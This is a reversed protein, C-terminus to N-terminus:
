EPGKEIREGAVAPEGKKGPFLKETLAKVPPNRRLIRIVTDPPRSEAARAISFRLMELLNIRSDAGVASFLVPIIIGSPCTHILLFGNVRGDTIVCCSLTQDFWRKPLYSLDELAPSTYGFAINMLGQNFERNDLSSISQIYPPASKKAISLETCERLTVDIYRSEVSKFSFGCDRLAVEKEKDLPISEFTTKVADEELVRKRYDELLESIYSPDAAYIWRLESETDNESEVSKLEWILLSLPSDSDPDCGAIGRYYMRGLHEAVDRDVLDEYERINDEFIAKINM